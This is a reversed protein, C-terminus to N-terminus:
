LLPPLGTGGRDGTAGAYEYGNAHKVKAGRGQVRVDGWLTLIAQLLVGEIVDVVM